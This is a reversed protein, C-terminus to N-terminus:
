KEQILEFKGARDKLIVKNSEISLVVASDVGEGVKVILKRGTHDSITAVENGVTGKLVYKRLPPEVRPGTAAHDAAYNPGRAPRFPNERNPNQVRVVKVKGSSDPVPKAEPHTTSDFAAASDSKIGLRIFALLSDPGSTRSGQDQSRHSARPFNEIFSAGGLYLVLMAPALPWWHFIGRSM